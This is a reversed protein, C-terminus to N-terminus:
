HKYIKNKPNLERIFKRVRNEAGKCKCLKLLVKGDAEWMFVAKTFRLDAIANLDSRDIVTTTHKLLHRLNQTLTPM